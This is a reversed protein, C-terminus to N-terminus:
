QLKLPLQVAQVNLLSISPFKYSFDNLIEDIGFSQWSVLNIQEVLNRSIWSKHSALHKCIWMLHQLFQASHRNGSKLVIRIELSIRTSLVFHCMRYCRRSDINVQFCWSIFSLFKPATIQCFIKEEHCKLRPHLHNRLKETKMRMIQLLDQAVM